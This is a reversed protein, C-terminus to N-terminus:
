SLGWSSTDQNHWLFLLCDESMWTCVPCTQWIAYDQHNHHTQYLSFIVCAYSNARSFTPSSKEDRGTCSSMSMSIFLSLTQNTTYIQISYTMNKREPNTDSMNYTTQLNALTTNTTIYWSGKSLILFDCGHPLYELYHSHTMSLIHLRNVTVKNSLSSHSRWHYVCLCYPLWVALKLLNETWNSCYDVTCLTISINRGPYWDYQPLSATLHSSGHSRWTM